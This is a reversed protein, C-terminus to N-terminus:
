FLSGQTPYKPARSQPETKSPKPMSPERAPAKPEARAEAPPAAPPPAEPTRAQEPKRDPPRVPGDPDGRLAARTKKIYRIVHQLREDDKEQELVDLNILDYFNIWNVELEVDMAPNPIYMGRQVRLFIRRARPEQRRLENRSFVASIYERTRRRESVVPEPLRSLTAIFDATEFAPISWEIKHRLINQFTALMSNLLFFEMMHRDLKILREGVKVKLCSPALLEYLAGIKEAAYGPDLYARRLALQFPTRGWNDRLEPNAGANLLTGALDALGMEAAIMLPTQNLPNRFDIGYQEIKRRLGSYNREYYDQRHRRLIAKHDSPTPSAARTFKLRALEWLLPKVSCVIAYEFLQQKAQKNFRAPDLAEKKLEEVAAPTLVRWPVRGSGLDKRILEAQEHKGQMELRRAEREWDERSSEQAAVLVRDSAQALGLLCFIGHRRNQEVIYLNRVARTSAVYLSNAFFKYADLSKDSKDKARAYKAEGELDSERVGTIIEDFERANWSVINYLIVNDYELGKAEQISFVLPTSFHERARAKDEGRLVIVAFRTSKRTKQNLEGLVAADAQLLAVEGKNQSISQVAYNSERDVSGFRASKIRLLRNAVGTIEPSNRYNTHLVRMIERREEARERYFLTKVHAWSFFNPHVVQNADGGLIFNGGDRLHKLILRLQVNTIDQVEDVVVFDYQPRVAPGYEHSVLNLDYFGNSRIHALYKEFLGYAENREDNLFISQRVGLDLYDDRSLFPRDIVFGTLVGRFEEFLRHADKIRSSQRHRSFWQEFERFTIEKGAPVRITELLERYSLFDIEVRDNEYHNSYFINRANEVLYPSLTVYLAEGSLLKLKELMLATKGSGASGIIILPPPLRFIEEQLEDFSLVKDLLHFRPSRLNVYNLPLAASRAEAHPDAVPVLKNEDIAAGNLFRSKEYAHNYLVELLLLYTRDAHCAFRFLLRDARDLKARYYPTGSLKKVDAARFDGARLHELTRQFSDTVGSTDLDSYQLVEM